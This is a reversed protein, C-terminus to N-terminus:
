ETKGQTVKAVALDKIGILDDDILDVTKIIGDRMMIEMKFDGLHKLIIGDVLGKTGLNLAETANFFNDHDIIREVEKRTLGVNEVYAQILQDRIDQVDRMRSKLDANTGDATSIMDHMMFRSSPYALRLNMASIILTAASSNRGGCVAIAEKPQSKFWDIINLSTTVCGGHSNISVHFRNQKDPETGIPNSTIVNNLTDRRIQGYITVFNLKRKPVEPKEEEVEKEVEDTEEEKKAEKEKAKLSELTGWGSSKFQELVNEYNNM